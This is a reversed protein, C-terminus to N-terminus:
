ILYIIVLLYQRLSKKDLDRIATAYDYGIETPCQISPLYKVTLYEMYQTNFILFCIKHFSAIEMLITQAQGDRIQFNSELPITFIAPVINEFIFQDFGALPNRRLQEFENKFGKRDPDPISIDHQVNGGWCYVMKTLLSITLKKTPSDSVDDLTSLIMLLTPQLQATNEVSYFVDDLQSNFLIAFLNLSSKRLNVLNIKDDTGVPIISLFQTIKESLPKWMGILIPKISSKFKHISLGVFPLFDTLEKSSESSLLGSSLFMPIYELLEPGMCGTMRQLAFRTASRINEFNNYKGLVVLIGQLTVKFPESWVRTDSGSLEKDNFEPFGKTVGGIASILDGMEAVLVLEIPNTDFFAMIEEIRSLAPRMVITLLEALRQKSISDISLLYGVAEFLYIQADVECTKELDKLSKVIRPRIVLLEQLVLLISEVYQGL